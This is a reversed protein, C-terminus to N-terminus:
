RWVIQLLVWFILCSHACSVDPAPAILRVDEVEEGSCFTLDQHRLFLIKLAESFYNGLKRFLLTIYVNLANKTNISKELFSNQFLKYSKIALKINKKCFSRLLKRNFWLLSRCRRFRSIKWMKRAAVLSSSKWWWETDDSNKSWDQHQLM